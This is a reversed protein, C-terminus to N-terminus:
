RSHNWDRAREDWNIVNGDGPFLVKDELNLLLRGLVLEKREMLKPYSLGKVVGLAIQYRIPWDLLLWGKHLADWLIGNLMYEYVLQKCNFSAFYSYLKIINKHRISGLTEIETKLGKDLIWQDELSTDKGARSWLKKVAVILREDEILENKMSLADIDQSIVTIRKHTRSAKPWQSIKLSIEAVDDTEWGRVKSFTRAETENGFVFDVYPLAKVQVDKFFEGLFPVSLNMSFVKNKAATHEAVLQISNPSVTLCFGAIYLYKAKKVLAWNEPKKLHESKYCNAASLNAILSREGVGVVLYPDDPPYEEYLWVLPEYRCEKLYNLKELAYDIYVKDMLLLRFRYLDCLLENLNIIVPKGYWTCALIIMLSCKDINRVLVVISGKMYIRKSWSMTYLMLLLMDSWGDILTERSALAIETNAEIAAITPKLGACSITRTFVSVVKSHQALEIVDQKGLIIESKQKMDDLSENKIDISQLKVTKVETADVVAELFEDDGFVEVAKVLTLAIGPAGHCWHVLVDQRKDQESAPYNGSPFRNSSVYRLTSKVGEAENPKLVINVLVHMIGALGHAAVVCLACVYTRGCEFTVDRSSLSAFNCADVMVLCLSLDNANDTLQFSKFFLFPSGLTGCYRTFDSVNQATVGWTELIIKSPKEGPDFQISRNTEEVVSLGELKQLRQALVQPDSREDLDEASVEKISDDLSLLQLGKCQDQVMEKCYDQVTAKGTCFKDRDSDHIQQDVIEMESPRSM